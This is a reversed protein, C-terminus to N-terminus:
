SLFQEIRELIMKQAKTNLLYVLKGEFTKDVDFFDAHIALYSGAGDTSASLLTSVADPDGPGAADAFSYRATTGLFQSIANAFSRTLVEGLQRLALQFAEQNREANPASTPSMYDLMRQAHARRTLVLMEAPIDGLMDLHLAVAMADPNEVFRAIGASDLCLLEPISVVCKRGILQALESAAHGAGINGVERLSDTQEESLEPNWSSM